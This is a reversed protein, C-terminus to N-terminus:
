HGRRRTPIGRLISGQPVGYTIPLINSIMNNLKVCQWRDILYSRFWGLTAGDLRLGRLKEIMKEHSITNFAKKLDLYIIWPDNKNNVNKYIADLFSTIASVTSKKKRFGHQAASLIENESLWEQLRRCILKEMLKGPLPTLAVPRLDSASKPHPVKPLPVITSLKWAKPFVSLSLSSNFITTAREINGLLADKLVFTKINVISSSKSNNIEKCVKQVEEETFPLRNFPEINVDRVRDRQTDNMNVRPTCEGALKSGINAFYDNIYTNLDMDKFTKGLNKDHISKLMSDQANPLIKNIESWFEKPNNNYRDLKGKIINSKSTKIDMCLSNRLNRAITWDAQCKTRRAKRFAKDRERMKILLDNTLWEPKHDVVKLSKIPCLTDLAESVNKSFCNWLETPDISTEFLTWDQNKLTGDFVGKDYRLYPRGVVDIKSVKNRIKKKILYIPLHDSINYNITGTKIINSMDTFLLDICTSTNDTIRTFGHIVQKLGYKNELLDLKSSSVLKKNKFNINFDGIIM